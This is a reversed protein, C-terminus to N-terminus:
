LWGIRLVEAVHPRDPGLSQNSQTVQHATPYLGTFLSAHSPITWQAPSVAQSFRASEEAIRDLNPTISRGTERAEIAM